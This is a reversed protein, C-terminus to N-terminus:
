VVVGANGLGVTRRQQVAAGVAHETATGVAGYRAAQMLSAHATPGVPAPRDSAQAVHAAYSVAHTAAPTCFVADTMSVCQIRRKSKRRNM